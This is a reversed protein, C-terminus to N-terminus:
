YKSLPLIGEHKPFKAVNNQQGQQMDSTLQDSTRSEASPPSPNESNVGTEVKGAGADTSTNTVTDLAVHTATPPNPTATPPNPITNSAAINTRPTPRLRGFCLRCWAEVDNAPPQFLEVIEYKMTKVYSSNNLLVWVSIFM